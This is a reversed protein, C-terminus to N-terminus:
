TFHCDLAEFQFEANKVGIVACFNQIHRLVFWQLLPAMGDWVVSYKLSVKAKNIFKQPFPIVM